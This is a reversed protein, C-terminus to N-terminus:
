GVRVLLGHENKVLVSGMESNRDDSVNWVYASAIYTNERVEDCRQHIWDEPYNSVYLLSYCEGFSTYCHTVYYVLIGFEKQLRTIQDALEGCAYSETFLKLPFVAPDKVVGDRIFEAVNMKTMLEEAVKIQEKLFM